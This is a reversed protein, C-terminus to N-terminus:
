PKYSQVNRRMLSGKVISNDVPNCLSTDGEIHEAMWAEFIDNPDGIPEDLDFGRSCIWPLHLGGRFAQEGLDAVDHWCHLRGNRGYSKSSIHPGTEGLNNTKMNVQYSAMPAGKEINERWCEVTKKLVAVHTECQWEDVQIPLKM